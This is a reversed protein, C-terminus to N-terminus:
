SVKGQKAARQLALDLFLSATWSFGDAGLGKGTEPEFYEYFGNSVVLQLLSEELWEALDSEGYDKLGHVMYWCMNFWIPGRWYFEGEYDAQCMDYSPIGLCSQDGVCFCHTKLNEILRGARDEPCIGAYLPIYSFITDREIPKGAALDYSYYLGAEDDWLKSNIGETIREAREFHLDAKEGLYEAIRGLDRESKALVSNFLVDQILFPHSRTIVEWDYDTAYLREVLYSYKEFYSRHPRKSKSALDDAITGMKRAWPSTETVRSLAEDWLPSNDLGSEWPHVLCALGEDHPDRNNFYFEHMRKLGPYITTLAQRNREKDPDLNPSDVLMSAHVAPQGIGSTPVGTPSETSRGAQWYDPGPFHELFAPNFLIHPVFGDQWQGKLLSTIERYGREPAYHLYGRSIFGADWNWQHPYLHRSAKTQEGFTNEDLLNKAEEVKRALEHQELRLDHKADSEEPAAADGSEIGLLERFRERQFGHIVAGKVITVPIAMRGTLSKLEDLASASDAVNRQIYDVSNADLYAKLQRCHPCADSFYLVIDGRASSPKRKGKYKEAARIIEEDELIDGVRKLLKSVDPVIGQSFVRRNILVIPAHWARRLIVRWWNSLWPRTEIEVPTGAFVESSLRQLISYTIDCERCRTRIRFFLFRGEWRFYQIRVKKGTVEAM